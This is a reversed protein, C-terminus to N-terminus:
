PKPAPAFPSAGAPAAPPPPAPHTLEQVLPAYQPSAISVKSATQFERLSQQLTQQALPDAQAKQQLLQARILEKAQDLTLTEKPKKEVVKVIWYTPGNRSPITIPPTVAGAATAKLPNVLVASGPPAPDTPIWQPFDGDPSSKDLSKAIQSEFTQGGKIAAAVAQADALSGLAVKKIHVRAPKTFAKDKNSDYFTKIDADTVTAGKTLLKTGALQPKIQLDKVIDGSLGADALSQEVPKVSRADQIMKFNDYATAVEADTPAVGQDQALGEIMLNQLMQALVLRGAQQGAPAFGGQPSTPSAPSNPVYAQLQTYFQAQSVTLTAGKPTTLTAVPGDGGPLAATGGGASGSHGCGALVSSLVALSALRAASRPTLQM